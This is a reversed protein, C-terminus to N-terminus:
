LLHCFSLVSNGCFVVSSPQGEGRFTHWQFTRAGSVPACYHFTASESILLNNPYQPLNLHIERQQDTSDSHYKQQSMKCIACCTRHFLMEAALRNRWNASSFARRFRSTPSCASSITTRFSTIEFFKQIGCSVSCGHLVDLSHM